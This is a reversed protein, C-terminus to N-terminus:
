EVKDGSRRLAKGARKGTHKGQWLTLAGNVLVGKIGKPYQHPNVYSATDELAEWDMIVLDAIGCEMMQKTIFITEGNEFEVLAQFKILSSIM